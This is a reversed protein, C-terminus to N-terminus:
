QTRMPQIWSATGGCVRPYVGRRGYSGYDHQPEGACAPISRDDDSPCHCTPLNGRVRPSLGDLDARFICGTLTGGCVRPYVPPNHPALPQGLPEGACAPISWKERSPNRIGYQNGRVRPSLGYISHRCSRSCRTGGCVRPYVRNVSALWLICSPEGACAPISRVGHVTVGSETLNGRM